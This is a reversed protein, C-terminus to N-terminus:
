DSDIESDPNMEDNTGMEDLETESDSESGSEMCNRFYEDVDEQILPRSTTEMSSNKFEIMKDKLLNLATECPYGPKMCNILFDESGDIDNSNGCTKFSKTILENPISEWAKLIWEMILILNSTTKAFEIIELKKEITWKKNVM